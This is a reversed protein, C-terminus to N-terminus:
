HMKEILVTQLHDTTSFGRRFGSKSRVSICSCPDFCDLSRGDCNYWIQKVCRSVERLYVTQLAKKLHPAIRRWLKTSDDRSVEGSEVPELYKNWHLEAQM